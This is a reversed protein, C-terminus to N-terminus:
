SGGSQSDKHNRSHSDCNDVVGKDPGICVEYYTPGSKSGGAQVSAYSSGSEADMGYNSGGWKGWGGGSGGANTINYGQSKFTSEYDSVVKKPTTGSIKYHGYTMAATTKNDLQKAGSPAPPLATSGGAAQTEPQQTQPQQTQPQQTETVTVEPTPTSSSGSSSCGSLLVGTATVAFAARLTWSTRPM